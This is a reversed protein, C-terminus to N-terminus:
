FVSSCLPTSVIACYSWIFGFLIFPSLIFPCLLFPPPVHHSVGPKWLNFSLFKRCNPDKGRVTQPRRRHLKGNVRRFFHISIEWLSKELLDITYLDTAHTENWSIKPCGAFRNRNPVNSASRANSVAIKCTSTPCLDQKQFKDFFVPHKKSSLVFMEVVCTDQQLREKCGFVNFM